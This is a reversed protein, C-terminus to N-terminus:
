RRALARGLADAENYSVLVVDPTFEIAMDMIKSLFMYEVDAGLGIQISKQKPYSEKFKELYPKVKEEFALENFMENKSPAQFLDERQFTVAKAGAKSGAWKIIFSFEQDSKNVLYIKPNLPPPAVPDTVTSVGSPPVTQKTLNIFTTSLLLFFIVTTFMDLIPVINLNRFERKRKIEFLDSV